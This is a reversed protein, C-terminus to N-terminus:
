FAIVKTLWGYFLHVIQVITPVEVLPCGIVRLGIVVVRSTPVM